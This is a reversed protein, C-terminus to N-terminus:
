SVRDTESELESLLARRLKSSTGTNELWVQKLRPVDGKQIAAILQQLPKGRIAVNNQLHLERLDPLQFSMAADILLQFGEDSVRQGVGLEEMKALRGNTLPVELSRVGEDSIDNDMVLLSSLGEPAFAKHQIADALASFGADGISNCYLYLRRLAPLGGSRAAASFASLGADGFHNDIAFFDTLQSFPLLMCARALASLGRDGVENVNICFDDVSAMTICFKASSCLIELEDDTLFSKKFNLQKSDFKAGRAKAHLLVDAHADIAEAKREQLTDAWAIRLTECSQALAVVDIDCFCSRHLTPLTTDLIEQVAANVAMPTLQIKEKSATMRLESLDYQGTETDYRKFSQSKKYGLSMSFQGPQPVTSMSAQELAGHEFWLVRDAERSSLTGNGSVGSGQRSVSGTSPRPGWALLEAEDQEARQRRLAERHRRLEQRSIQTDDHLCIPVTLSRLVQEEDDTAEDLTDSDLGEVSM